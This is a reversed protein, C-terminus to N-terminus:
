ASTGEGSGSSILEYGLFASLVSYKKILMESSLKKRCSDSTTSIDLISDTWFHYEPSPQTWLSPRTGRIYDTEYTSKIANWTKALM